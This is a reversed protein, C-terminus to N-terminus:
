FTKLSHSFLRTYGEEGESGEKVRLMRMFAKVKAECECVGDQSQQPPVQESGVKVASTYGAIKTLTSGKKLKATAMSFDGDADYLVKGNTDKEKIM